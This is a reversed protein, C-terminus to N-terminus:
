SVDVERCDWVLRGGRKVKRWGHVHVSWGAKRVAAFAEVCEETIKTIRAAANSGSTTQVALTEGDRVGLVDIFGYLDSRRKTFSNFKEVVAVTYGRSRLLELTRSTPSSM